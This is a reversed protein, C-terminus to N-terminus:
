LPSEEWVDNPEVGGDHPYFGQFSRGHRVAPAEEM